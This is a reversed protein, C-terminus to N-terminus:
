FNNVKFDLNFLRFRVRLNSKNIEQKFDFFSFKFELNNSHGINLTSVKIIFEFNADIHGM